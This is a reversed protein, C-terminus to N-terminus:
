MVTVHGLPTSVKYYLHEIRRIYIRCLTKPDTEGVQKELYAQVRKIIKEIRAEGELRRTVIM